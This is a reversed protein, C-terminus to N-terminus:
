NKFQSQKEEESRKQQETKKRLKNLFTEMKKKKEPDAITKVGKEFHFIANRLDRKYQYYVGLYYHYEGQKGLKHCTEGLSYLAQTHNPKKTIIEEFANAAENYKGLEMKARGLYYLGEHDFSVLKLTSELINLAEPYQGDLFYIKGLDRLINPDFAKKELAIRIHKIADKRNGTRALILGYGYHSIPDHPTDRVDAKFKKLALTEDGYLALLKTKAIIFNSSDVPQLLNEKEANTDIWSSIYSIREETGPHTKLYTPIYDSGFWEKNRIKGLVLLLGKCSYGAESLYKLGIQDAQRENERSFSLAASQSAAISGMTIATGATAAGGVGLFIGAVMGALTALNAKKSREIMDSIHRCVVHSIEHGLIGALEEESDMAEILGSNVFIHGAPAAFANYVDENIAYFHYKFPQSPFYSLLKQGLENIYNDIFPDDIIEYRARAAYLFERSLMQEERATIGAVNGPLVIVFSFFVITLLSILKKFYTM